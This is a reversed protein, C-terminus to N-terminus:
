VNLANEYQECAVSLTKNKLLWMKIKKTNYGM